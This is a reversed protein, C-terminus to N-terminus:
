VNCFYTDSDVTGWVPNVILADCSDAHPTLCALEKPCFTTAARVHVQGFIKSAVLKTEKDIKLCHSVCSHVAIALAKDVYLVTHLKSNFPVNCARSCCFTM